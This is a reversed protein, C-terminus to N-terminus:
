VARGQGTSEPQEETSGVSAAGCLQVDNAESPQPVLLGVEGRCATAHAFWGDDIPESAQTRGTTELLEAALCTLITGSGQTDCIEDPLLETLGAEGRCRRTDDASCVNAQIHGQGVDGSFTCFLGPEPCAARSPVKGSTAPAEAATRGDLSSVSFKCVLAVMTSPPLGGVAADFHACRFQALTFRVRATCPAKSARNPSSRPRSVSRIYSLSQPVGGAVSENDM